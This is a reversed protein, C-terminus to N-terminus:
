LTQISAVVAQLNNLANQVGTVNLSAAVSSKLVANIYAELPDVFPQIVTKIAAIEGKVLAQASGGVTAVVSLSAGLGKIADVIRGVDAALTDLDSQVLGTIATQIGGAAGTTSGALSAQAATLAQVIAALNANIIAEAQIVAIISTSGKIQAVAQALSLTLRVVGDQTQHRSGM